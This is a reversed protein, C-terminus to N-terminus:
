GAGPGNFRDLGLFAVPLASKGDLVLDALAEGLVSVFKFGHGSFGCALVVDPHEPHHDIIFHGDPSNTYMCVMARVMPGRGEPLFTDFAPKMVAFDDSRLNRDMQEPTSVEGPYHHGVKMASQGEVMPFGYHIGTSGPADGQVAWCSFRGSRFREAQPPMVWFLPQRTVSLRLPLGALLRGSWSGATFLLKGAHYSSRDTTVRVGGPLADWSRVQEGPHLDAGLQRAQEAYRAIARLSTIYGGADEFMAAFGEPLEFPGCRERLADRDLMEYAIGHTRAARLSGSLLGGEPRGIYVAGTRFLLQEGTLRGIEDWAQYARRLLPVYDPHEFYSLRILRTDGGSSGMANPIDFQELGLVRVGRRALNYCASAGFGGVGVVIVDYQQM